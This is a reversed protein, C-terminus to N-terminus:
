SPPVFLSGVEGEAVYYTWRRDDESTGSEPEPESGPEPEVEISANIESSQGPEPEVQISDNIESSQGPEPEVEISANIGSSQDPEPEAKSVNPNSPPGPRRKPPM